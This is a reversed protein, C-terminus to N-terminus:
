PGPSVAQDHETLQWPNNPYHCRACDVERRVDHSVYPDGGAGGEASEAARFTLWMKTDESPGVALGSADHCAGCTVNAHAADHGVTRNGTGLVDAHCGPVACSAELSHPDHCQTCDYGSHADSGLTVGYPGNHCKECLEANTKVAEYPDSTTEYQAVLTNLWAVPATVVGNEVRHCVSCEICKWDAVAVPKPTPVSFKCNACTSPMDAPDTPVWNWPSHCRACANNEGREDAVFTNAHKGSEWDTRVAPQGSTPLETSPPAQGQALAPSPAPSSPAVPLQCAAALIGGLLLVAGIALVLIWRDPGFAAGVRM